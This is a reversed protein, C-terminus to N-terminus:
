YYKILAVRHINRQNLASWTRGQACSSVVPLPYLDVDRNLLRTCCTRHGNDKYECALLLQLLSADEM